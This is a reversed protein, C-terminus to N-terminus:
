FTDSMAIAFISLDHRSNVNITRLKLVYTPMAVCAPLFTVFSYGTHHHLTISHLGIANNGTNKTPYVHRKRTSPTRVSPRSGVSSTLKKQKARLNAPSTGECMTFHILQKVRKFGTHTCTGLRKPGDTMDESHIHIYNYDDTQTLPYNPEM